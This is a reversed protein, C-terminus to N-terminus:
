LGALSSDDDEVVFENNILEVVLQRHPLQPHALAMKIQGEKTDIARIDKGSIVQKLQGGKDVRRVEVMEEDFLLLYPHQLAVDRPRCVFEIVSPGVLNGHNDTYIAMDEYCLLLSKESVRFMGIPKSNETRKKLSEPSFNKKNQSAKNLGTVTGTTFSSSVPVTEPTKVDLSMVEFGRTTHVAFSSKFFSLGYAETPVYFKEVERFYETSGISSGRSFIMKSRRRHSGKEKVPEIVKFTSSMGERRKYFLLSRDKMHGVTFFGVERHKSLKYGGVQSATNSNSVGGNSNNPSGTTAGVNNIVNGNTAAAFTSPSPSSNAATPKVAGQSLISDLNYYVLAKDALMVVVNLDEVVDIQTVKYIDVCRRWISGAKAEKVYVGFDLGLLTYEQGDAFVFSVGCNIRSKALPRPINNATPNEEAQQLARDLATGPAFVPLKPSVAPEYGFAYGALVKMRFPEANLAYVASSYEQKANIVSDKWRERDLNSPAYFTFSTAGHSGSGLHTIRFPYMVEKEPDQLATVATGDGGPSQPSNNQASNSKTPSVPSTPPLLTLKKGDPSSSINNTFTGMGLKSSSSKTVAEGDISELVLM